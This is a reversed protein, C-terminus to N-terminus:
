IQMQKTDSRDAAKQLKSIIQMLSRIEGAGLSQTLKKEYARALPVVEELVQQGRGPSIFLRRKRRDTRDTTRVLLQNEILKNVARSVAVKDMATRAAVESATLGSFRGLVAMVRWETISIEHRNRYSEAMGQSITNTLLSLRYPLFSELEFEGPQTDGITEHQSTKM